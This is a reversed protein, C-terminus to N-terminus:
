LHPLAYNYGDVWGRRKWGRVVHRPVPHAFRVGHGLAPWGERDVGVRWVNVWSGQVLVPVFEESVVVADVPGFFQGPALGWNLSGRRHPASYGRCKIRSTAGPTQFYQGIVVKPLKM